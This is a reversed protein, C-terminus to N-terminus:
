SIESPLYVCPFFFNIKNGQGKVSYKQCKFPLHFAITPFFIVSLPRDRPQPCHEYKM